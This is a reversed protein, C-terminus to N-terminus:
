SFCQGLDAQFAARSRSFYAGLEIFLANQHLWRTQELVRQLKFHRGGKAYIYVSYIYGERGVANRELPAWPRKLVDMQIAIPTSPDTTGFRAWSGDSLQRYPPDELDGFQAVVSDETPRMLIRCETLSVCLGWLKPDLDRLFQKLRAGDDAHGQRFHAVRNRVQIIEESRADWQKLPMLYPEFLTWHAEIMKLLGPFLMYSILQDEATPMHHYAQDNLLIRKAKDFQAELQSGFKTKLEVYVLRRLWVELRWLDKYIALTSDSPMLRNM